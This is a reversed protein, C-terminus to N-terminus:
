QPNRDRDGISAAAADVTSQTLGTLFVHAGKTAIRQAAALGIGTTAGTVL